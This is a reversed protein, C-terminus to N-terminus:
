SGSTFFLFVSWIFNTNPVGQDVGIIKGGYNPRDDTGRAYDSMQLNDFAKHTSVATFVEERMDLINQVKKIGINRLVCYGDRQMQARIKASDPKGELIHVYKLVSSKALNDFRRLQVSM